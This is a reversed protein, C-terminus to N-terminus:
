CGAGALAMGALPMRSYASAAIGAMAGDLEASRGGDRPTRGGDVGSEDDGTEHFDPDTVTPEPDRFRWNTFSAATARDSVHRSWSFM